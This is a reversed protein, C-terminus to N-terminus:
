IGGEAVTHCLDWAEKQTIESTPELGWIKLYYKENDKTIVVGIENTIKGTCLQKNCITTAQQKKSLLQCKYKLTPIRFSRKKM